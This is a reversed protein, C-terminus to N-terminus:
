VRWCTAMLEDMDSWALLFEDLSALVPGELLAPDYYSIQESLIDAVLVTHQTQIDDWGPLNMNTLLAVIVAKDNTLTEVITEIGGWAIIEVAIQWQKLRKIRSFPTGYGPETEMIRALEDQTVALDLQDLAMQGCAPLCYGLTVQHVHTPLKLQSM